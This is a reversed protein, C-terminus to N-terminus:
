YTNLLAVESPYDLEPFSLIDSYISVAQAAPKDGGEGAMAQKTVSEEKQQM